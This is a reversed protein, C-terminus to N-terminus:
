YQGCAHFRPWRQHHWSHHRHPRALHPRPVLLNPGSAEQVVPSPAHWFDTALLRSCIACHRYGPPVRRALLRDAPIGSSCRQLGRVLNQDNAVYIGLGFAVIFMLYAVVQMAAHIWVLGPLSLVRIIIGGIPFFVAFALCALIGHAMLMQTRRSATLTSGQSFGEQSSAENSSDDCDDDAAVARRYNDSFPRGTPAPGDGFRSGFSSAKSAWYSEDNTNSPSSGGATATASASGSSSRRTCSQGSSSLPNASNGGKAASFDFELNGNNDHQSLSAGADDSDISSGSKM